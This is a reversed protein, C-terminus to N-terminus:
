KGGCGCKTKPAVGTYKFKAVEVKKIAPKTAPKDPVSVYRDTKKGPYGEDCDDASCSRTVYPARYIFNGNFWYRRKRMGLVEGNDYVVTDNCYEVLRDYYPGDETTTKGLFVRKYYKLSAGIRLRCEASHKVSPYLFCDHIRSKNYFVVGEHGGNKRLQVKYRVPVQHGLINIGLVRAFNFQRLTSSRSLKTSTSVEAPTSCNM